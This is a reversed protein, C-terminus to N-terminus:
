MFSHECIILWEKHYEKERGRLSVHTYTYTHIYTCLYMFMCVYEIYILAISVSPESKRQVCLDLKESRTKQYLIIVSTTSIINVNM